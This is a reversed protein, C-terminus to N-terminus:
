PEKYLLKLALTEPDAIYYHFASDKFQIEALYPQQPRNVNEDWFALKWCIQRTDPEPTILPPYKYNKYRENHEQHYKKLVSDTRLKHLFDQVLSSAFKR